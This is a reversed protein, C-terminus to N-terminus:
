LNFTVHCSQSGLYQKLEDKSTNEIEGLKTLDWHYTDYYIEIKNGRYLMLDGPKTTYTDNDYPLCQYLEAVKLLNGYDTMHLEFANKKLLDILANGSPSNIINATWVKEGVQIKIKTEM